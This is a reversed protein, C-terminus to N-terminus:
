AIEGSVTETEEAIIEPQRRISDYFAAYFTGLWPLLWFLAVGLTIVTAGLTILGLLIGYGFLQMKHGYMIQSSETMAEKVSCEPNDLMVFFTMSYRYGAIIGPIILLLGWLITFILVRLNAWVFRLYQNFPTFIVNWGLQENRIIKLWFLATGATLPALLYGTLWGIKPINQASYYIVVSFLSIGLAFWRKGKLSNWSLKSLESFSSGPSIIEKAM